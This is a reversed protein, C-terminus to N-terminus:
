RGHHADAPAATPTTMTSPATNRARVRELFGDDAAAHGPIAIAARLAREACSWRRLTVCVDALTEQYTEVEPHFRAAREAWWLAQEARGTDLLKHAYGAAASSAGTEAARQADALAEARRGLQWLLDARQMRLQIDDPLVALGQEVAQLAAAPEFDHALAVGLDQHMQYDRPNSAIAASFLDRSTAWAGEARITCLALVCVLAGAVATRATGSLRELALAAVLCGGATWLFAYRDAVAIHLPALLHSVPLFWLWTWALAAMLLRDTRRRYVLALSFALAAIGLAVDLAGPGDTQLPYSLAPRTALVLGALYHGQAGLALVVRNVDLGGEDLVRVQSAVLVVPVAALASAVGASAIMQWRRRRPSVLLVDWAAIVAVSFMAPAQSWVGCVASVVSAALWARHGGQRFRIWAHGCLLVSLAALMGKRESMWAVSQVCLPHAVWLLTALWAARAPFGWRV